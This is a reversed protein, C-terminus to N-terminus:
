APFIPLPYSIHRPIVTHMPNPHPIAARIFEYREGFRLPFCATTVLAGAYTLLDVNTVSEPQYHDLVYRIFNSGIFGCGGTVLLRMGRSKAYGIPSLWNSAFM